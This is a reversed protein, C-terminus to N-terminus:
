ILGLEKLSCFGPRQMTSDGIVVHDLLRIQLLEGAEAIRKTFRRDAESPTPDGSPHNHVLLFASAATLVCPRLIERPHAVTESVTGVSAINFGLPLHKRDLMIVTLHEKDAEFSEDAAVVDRWFDSVDAPRSLPTRAAVYQALSPEGVRTLAIRLPLTKM